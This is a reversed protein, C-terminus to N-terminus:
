RRVIIVPDLEFAPDSTARIWYKVAIVEKGSNANKKLPLMLAFGSGAPDAAKWTTPEKPDALDGAGNGEDSLLVEFQMDISETARWTISHRGNKPLDIWAHGGKYLGKQPPTASAPVVEIGTVKGGERIVVVDLAFAKNVLPVETDDLQKTTGCGALVLLTAVVVCRRVWHGQTHITM